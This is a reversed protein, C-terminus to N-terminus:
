ALKAGPVGVFNTNSPATPTASAITAFAAAAAILVFRFSLMKFATYDLTGTLTLSLFWLLFIKLSSTSNM